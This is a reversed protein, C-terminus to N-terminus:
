QLQDSGDMQDKEVLRFPKVTVPTFRLLSTQGRSKRKYYIFGALSLIVGLILGSAGIAIQNRQSEPMSPDSPLCTSVSLRTYPCPSLCAASCVSLYKGWDKILPTKLSAHEVVCSIKEGSRNWCLLPETLLCLGPCYVSDPTTSRCTATTRSEGPRTSWTLTCSTTGTATQWSTRPPSMM